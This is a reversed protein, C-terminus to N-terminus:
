QHKRKKNIVKIGLFFDTIFLLIFISPMIITLANTKEKVGTTTIADSKTDEVINEEEVEDEEIRNLKITYEKTEAGKTVVIKISEKNEINITGSGEVKIDNGEVKINLTTTKSDINITYEYTKSDFDIKYGEIEFKSIVIEEKKDEKIEEKKIEEKKTEPITTSPQTNNNSNNDNNTPPQTVVITVSPTTTTANPLSAMYTQMPDLQNNTDLVPVLDAQDLLQVTATITYNGAQTPTFTFTKETTKNTLDNVDLSMVNNETNSIGGSFQYGWALSNMTLTLTCSEGVQIQNKDTTLTASSANVKPTIIVIILIILILLYKVRKM